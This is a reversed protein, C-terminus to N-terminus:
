CCIVAHTANHPMCFQSTVVCYSYKYTFSSISLQSCNNSSTSSTLLKITELYTSKLVESIVNVRILLSKYHRILSSKVKYNIRHNHHSQPPYVFQQILSLINLEIFKKNAVNVLITRDHKIFVLEKISEDHSLNQQYNSREIKNIYLNCCAQLLNLNLSTNTYETSVYLSQHHFFFNLM